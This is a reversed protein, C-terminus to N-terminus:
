TFVLKGHQAQQVLKRTNKATEESSRAVRELPGGGLAAAAFPNFTGVVSVARRALVEFDIGELDLIGAAREPSIAEKIEARKRAAEDLAEQWQRRAEAVAEETAKLEAEYQQRRTVHRRQREEELVALAGKREEEIAAHRARRTTEIDRLQQQTIRERERQEQAFQEDLIGMAGEVDISRDFLAMLQVIKKAIWNQASRWGTVVHHTFTTWASSMRSVTEVWATQMWAWSSTLIKATSYVAETTVAMFTEKFDIWKDTLWAVGKQWELKLTLWLIRAALGIDGAALADSIGKWAALATERLAIFQQGLWALARQGIGSVYLFYGGLSVLAAAVLGIPSLIFGLVSALTKLVTGIGVIISALTGFVFGLFSLIGGLAILAASFVVVAGAVKFILVFLDKNQKIWALASKMVRTLSEVFDQLVPAIASGIVFVGHKIVRWLIDMTDGLEDAATADETSITLGLERAQGRLEEIGAVGQQLLPL